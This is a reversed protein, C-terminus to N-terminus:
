SDAFEITKKAIEEEMLTELYLQMADKLHEMAEKITRGHSHCGPLQPCWTHYQEGDKEINFNLKNM